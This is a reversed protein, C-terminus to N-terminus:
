AAVKGAELAELLKPIVNKPALCNPDTPQPGWASQWPAGNQITLLVGNWKKIDFDAPNSNAKRKALKGKEKDSLYNGEILKIFSSQRLLFDLTMAFPAKGESKIKGKLWDSAEIIALADKWGHIGGCDKLRAQLHKRRLPSLVKPVTLSLRKALDAYLDYAQQVEDSGSNSALINSDTNVLLDTRVIRSPKGAGALGASAKRDTAGEIGVVQNEPQPESEGIDRTKPCNFVTYQLKEFAKTEPSRVRTRSIYGFNILERILRQMKAKGVGGRRALQQLNVAWHDPKSLLYTLVGICDFSLGEDLFPENFILTYNNDRDGRVINIPLDTM